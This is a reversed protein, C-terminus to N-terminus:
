QADGSGNPQPPSRETLAQNVKDMLQAMGFPKGIFYPTGVRHAVRRLDPVGSMLLIPIKELGADRVLIQSAMEPGNLVPMDVDCVILEPKEESLRALGEKGNRALRVQHGGAGLIEALADVMDLDDDVVLLNAM